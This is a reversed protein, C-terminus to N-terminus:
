RRKRGSKRTQGSSMVIPQVEGLDQDQTLIVARKGDFFQAPSKQTGETKKRADVQGYFGAHKIGNKNYGHIYGEISTYTDPHYESPDDLEKAYRHDVFDKKAELINEITAEKPMKYETFVDAFNKDGGAKIKANLVYGWMESLKKQPLNLSDYGKKDLEAAYKKIKELDKVNPFVPITELKSLSYYAHMINDILDDGSVEIFFSYVGNSPRARDQAKLASEANFNAIRERMEFGEDTDIPYLKKAQETLSFHADLWKGDKDDTAEYKLIPVGNVIVNATFETVDAVIDNGAHDIAVTKRTKNQEIDSIKFDGQDKLFTVLDNLDEIKQTHPISSGDDVGAGRVKTKTKSMIKLMVLNSSDEADQKARDISKTLNYLPRLYLEDKIQDEYITSPSTKAPQHQVIPARFGIRSATPSIDTKTEKLYTALENIVNQIFEADDVSPNYNNDMKKFDKLLREHKKTDRTNKPILNIIGELESYKGKMNYEKEMIDKFIKIANPGSPPRNPDVIILPKEVAERVIQLITKM